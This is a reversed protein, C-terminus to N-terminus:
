ATKERAALERAHGDLWDAEEDAGRARAYESAEAYRMAADHIEGALELHEAVM